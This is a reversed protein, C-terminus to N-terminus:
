MYLAKINKKRNFILWFTKYNPKSELKHVATVISTILMYKLM